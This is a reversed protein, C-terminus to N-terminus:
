LTEKSKLMWNAGHIFGRKWNAIDDDSMGDSFQECEDDAGIHIMQQIRKEVFGPKTDIVPKGNKGKRWGWPEPAMSALSSTEMNLTKNYVSVYSNGRQIDLWKDVEKETYLPELEVEGNKWMKWTDFDKLDDLTIM